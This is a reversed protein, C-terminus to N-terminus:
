RIDYNNYHSSTPNFGASKLFFVFLTSTLLYVVSLPNSMPGTIVLVNCVLLAAMVALIKVKSRSKVSELDQGARAKIVSGVLEIGGQGNIDQCEVALTSDTANLIEPGAAAESRVNENGGGCNHPSIERISDNSIRM